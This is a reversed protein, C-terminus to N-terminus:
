YIIFSLVVYLALYLCILIGWVQSKKTWSKRQYPNRISLSPMTSCKKNGKQRTNRHWIRTIVFDMKNIKTKLKKNFLYKLTAHNTFIIPKSMILYSRFKYFACVVALLEKETTTYNEQMPNLTKTAYYLKIKKEIM